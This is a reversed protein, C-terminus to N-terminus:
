YKPSQVLVLGFVILKYVVTVAHVTPLPLSAQNLIKIRNGFFFLRYHLVIIYIELHSQKTAIHGWGSGGSM